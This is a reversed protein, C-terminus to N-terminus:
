PKIENKIAKGTAHNEMARSMSDDMFNDDYTMTKGNQIQSKGVALLANIHEIKHKEKSEQMRRLADRILETANSYIGAKIENTIFKDYPDGLNLHM